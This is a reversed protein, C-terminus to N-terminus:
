NLCLFNVATLRSTRLVTPFSASYTYFFGEGLFGLRYNITVVVVRGLAALVSGDVLNGSGWEYSDGHLYLVVPYRTETYPFLRSEHNLALQSSSKPNLGKEDDKVRPEPAYINLYLCDESQETLLQSQRLLDQMSLAPLNILRNCTRPRGKIVSTTYPFTRIPSFTMAYKCVVHTNQM